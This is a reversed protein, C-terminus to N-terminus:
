AAAKKRSARAREIAERVTDASPEEGTGRILWDASSGLVEALRGVGLSGPDRIVGREIQGVVGEALGALASLERGSIKM